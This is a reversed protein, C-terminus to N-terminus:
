VYVVSERSVLVERLSDLKNFYGKWSLRARAVCVTIRCSDSLGCHNVAIKLCYMYVPKWRDRVSARESAKRDIWRCILAILDCKLYNYSQVYVRTHYIAILIMWLFKKLPSPPFLCIKKYLYIWIIAYLYFNYLDIFLINLCYRITRETSFIHLSKIYGYRQLHTYEFKCLNFFKNM